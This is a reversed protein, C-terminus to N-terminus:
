HYDVTQAALDLRALLGARTTEDSIGSAWARASEPDRLTLAEILAPVAADRRPGAPQTALWASAAPADSVAWHQMVAALTGSNEEAHQFAWAAAAAPETQAWEGALTLAAAQRLVPDHLAEAATLAAAPSRAALTSVASAAAAMRDNEPAQEILPALAAPDHGEAQWATLLGTRADSATASDLLFSAHWAAVPDTAALDPWLRALLAERLPGDPLACAEAWATGPSQGPQWAQLLHKLASAADEPRLGSLSKELRSWWAQVEAPNGQGPFRMAYGAPSSADAKAPFSAVSTETRGGTCADPRTQQGAMFGGIGTVAALLLPAKSTITRLANM